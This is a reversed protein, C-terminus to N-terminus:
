IDTVTKVSKKLRKMSKRIEALATSQIDNFHYLHQITSKFEDRELAHDSTSRDLAILRKEALTKMQTLRERLEDIESIIPSDGMSEGYSHDIMAGDTDPINYPNVHPALKAFATMGTDIQPEGSTTAKTLIDRARQYAEVPSGADIKGDVVEPHPQKMHQNEPEAYGVVKGGVGTIPLRWLMYTVSDWLHIFDPDEATVRIRPEEVPVVYGTVASIAAMLAPAENIWFSTSHTANPPTLIFMGFDTSRVTSRAGNQDMWSVETETPEKKIYDTM